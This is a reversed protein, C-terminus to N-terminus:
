APTRYPCLSNGTSRHFAYIRFHHLHRPIQPHRLYQSPIMSYSSSSSFKSSSIDSGTSSSMWASGAGGTFVVADTGGEPPAAVVAGEPAAVDVGEAPVPVAVGEPVAIGVGEPPAAVAVAEPAAVVVGEPPVDVVGDASAGSRFLM